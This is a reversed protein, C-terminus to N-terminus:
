QKNTIATLAEICMENERPIGVTIRLCHPLGFAKLPRVFVGLKMLEEFYFHVTEENKFNVMVFNGFSLTYDM